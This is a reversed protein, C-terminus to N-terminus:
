TSNNIQLSQMGTDFNNTYTIYSYNQNNIDSTDFILEYDFIKYDKIEKDLTNIDDEIMYLKQNIEQNKVFDFFYFVGSASMITIITIVVLLEILTFATIFKTHLYNIKKM